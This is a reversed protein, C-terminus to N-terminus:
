RLTEQQKYFSYIKIKMKNLYNEVHYRNTWLYIMDTNM